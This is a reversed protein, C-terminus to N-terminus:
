RQAPQFYRTDPPAQGKRVPMLYGDGSLMYHEKGVVVHRNNENCPYESWYINEAKRRASRTVTWPRTLANDIATIENRLINPDAKDLSIREKVVLKGDEHFPLGSNDYSHPGKIHRTEVVLTDFRGDGDTDEWHGIAYGMFQPEVFTPWARGDTYIRRLQGHLELMVYSIKPTIVIEMPQTVIMARPMGGPICTVTPDNGQGGQAQDALSTEFIAQYEPTLPAQQGRGPPKSPDFSGHGIRVWQGSWDPYKSDVQAQANAMVVCLAVVFAGTGMSSHNAM